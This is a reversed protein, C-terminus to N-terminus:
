LHQMLVAATEYLFNCLAADDAKLQLRKVTFPCNQGRKVYRIAGSRTM